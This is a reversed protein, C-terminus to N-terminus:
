EYFGLRAIQHERTVLYHTRIFFNASGYDQKDRLADGQYSKGAKPGSVPFSTKAKEIKYQQYFILSYIAVLLLILKMNVTTIVSMFLNHWRIELADPFSHEPILRVM